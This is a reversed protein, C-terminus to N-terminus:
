GAYYFTDDPLAGGIASPNAEYLVSYYKAIQAKMEAGSVFTLECYPIAKKAIAAKPIIGFAECLAATTEVDTTKEISAKYEKLFAEVAEPHEDLFAKRVVVCGMMLKNEEGAVAEWADNMSLAIRIDANKTTVASVAPQPVMAVTATGNVLLATLEDNTAVFQINVDTAPDINNEKLVYNLVYEPNAGQGTTYITKGKLDAVSNISSGNELMYLVGLTNVALLRINGSTKNYLSAAVNTPLAAIDVSNSTLLPGVADPASHTSFEYTNETTKDAAADMLHVMGIGTPGQITAVRVTVPEAPDKTDETDPNCAAFLTVFLLLVSCLAILKKM